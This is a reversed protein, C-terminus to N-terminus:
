WLGNLAVLASTYVGKIYGSLCFFLKGKLVTHPTTTRGIVNSRYQVTVNGHAFPSCFPWSTSLFSLLLLPPFYVVFPVPSASEVATL